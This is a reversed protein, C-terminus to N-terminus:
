SKENWDILSIKEKQSQTEFIKLLVRLLFVSLILTNAKKPM